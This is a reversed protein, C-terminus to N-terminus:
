EIVKPVILLNNAARPALKLAADRSLSTGPTDPRTVNFVPHAHATPEVNSVDLKKLHEIHELVRGIQGQFTSIEDETLALRALQAVHRVNLDTNSM